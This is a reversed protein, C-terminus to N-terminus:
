RLYETMSLGSLRATLLYLAEIQAEAAKLATATDYPDAAILANRAIQHAGAEAENRALAQSLAAEATGLAARLGTLADDATMVGEGAARLVVARAVPDSPLAGDAVLGALALGRITGRLRDDAATVPLAVQHGDGAPVDPLPTASGGYAFDVFGGGGAPAAFWADVASIVDTATVAGATVTSLEALLDDATVLPRTDTAAGAFMYRGATRSNLASIVGDLRQRSDAAVVDIQAANGTIAANLLAPAATRAESQVLDLATQMAGSIQLGEVLATRHAALAALGREFAALQRFDGSVARGVDEHRGSALEKGLRTLEAQATATQRRTIFVRAMDGLSIATM